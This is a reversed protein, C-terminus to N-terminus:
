SHHWLQAIQRTIDVYRSQEVVMRVLLKRYAYRPLLHQFFWKLRRPRIEAEFGAEAGVRPVPALDGAIKASVTVVHEDPQKGIQKRIAEKIEALEKFWNEPRRGAHLESAVARKWLRLSEVAQSERLELALSLLETTTPPKKALLLPLFSPVPPLEVVNFSEPTVERAAETLQSFMEKDDYDATPLALSAAMFLRSRKPQLVHEAQEDYTGHEISLQQAYGGFLLGGLLFTIIHRDEDPLKQFEELGPQWDYRFTRLEKLVSSKLSGEIPRATRLEDLASRKSREYVEGEVRVQVLPGREVLSRLMKGAAFTSSYSIFPLRQELIIADFFSFLAGVNQSLAEWLGEREAEPYSSAGELFVDGARFIMPDLVQRLKTDRCIRWDTMRSVIVTM